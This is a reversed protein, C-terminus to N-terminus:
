FCNFLISIGANLIVDNKGGVITYVDKGEFKFAIDKHIFLQAGLGANVNGQNNSAFRNPNFGNIGIGALVYPEIFQYPAFHYLGDLFFMTGTISRDDGTSHRYRSNFNELSAVAGWHADFNYGLSIFRTNTNKMQRKGSFFEYGAGFSLTTSGPQNGAYGLSFFCSCACLFLWNFIKM